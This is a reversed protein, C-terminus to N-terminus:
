LPFPFNLGSDPPKMAHFPPASTASIRAAVVASWIGLLDVPIGCFCQKKRTGTLKCLTIMHRFM